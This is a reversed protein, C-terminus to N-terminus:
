TNVKLHQYNSKKLDTATVNLFTTTRLIATWKKSFATGGQFYTTPVNANVIPQQTVVLDDYDTNQQMPAVTCSDGRVRM